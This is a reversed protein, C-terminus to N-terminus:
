GVILTGIMQTPHTDCRFIYEGRELAEVTLEQQVLGLEIETAAVPEKAESTKYVAFNHPIAEDQNDHRITIKEGDAVRIESKDFAIAKSVIDVVQAESESEQARPADDEDSGGCAAFSIAFLATAALAVLLVTTGRAAIHSRTHTRM